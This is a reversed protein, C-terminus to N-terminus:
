DRGVRAMQEPTIGWKSSMKDAVGDKLKPRAIEPRSKSVFIPHEALWTDAKARGETTTFDYAPVHEQYKEEVGALSLATKRADAKLVENQRELTLMREAAALKDAATAAEMEAVKARLTALEDASSAEPPGTAERPPDASPTLAVVPPTPAVPPAPSAVAAPTPSTDPVPASDPAPAPTEAPGTGDDPARTHQRRIM